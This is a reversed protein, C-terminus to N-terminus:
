FLCAQYPQVPPPRPANLTPSAPAIGQRLCWATMRETNAMTLDAPHYGDDALKASKGHLKEWPSAGKWRQMNEERWEKGYGSNIEVASTDTSFEIGYKAFEDAGFALCDVVGVGLVHARRIGARRLLPAVQRVVEAFIPKLSPQRGIICFGGLALWDRGPRALCLLAEVCGVYQRVTAGQAAYAIVGDIEDRRDWYRCASALTECVAPEATQESGRRKVRKKGTKSRPDDVLAEDVGVLMDYTIVAEFHFGPGCGDDRLRQQHALQRDLAQDPTCRTEMDRQQFAGSDEIARTGPLLPPVDPREFDLLNPYHPNCMARLDVAEPAFHRRNLRGHTKSPYLFVRRRM